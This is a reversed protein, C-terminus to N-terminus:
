SYLNIVTNCLKLVHKEKKINHLTVSYGVRILKTFLEVFFWCGNGKPSYLDTKTQRRRLHAIYIHIYISLSLHENQETCLWTKGNYTSTFDWVPKPSHDWHVLPPRNETWLRPKEQEWFTSPSRQRAVVGPPTAPPSPPLSRGYRDLPPHPPPPHRHNRFLSSFSFSLLQSRDREGERQQLKTLAAWM